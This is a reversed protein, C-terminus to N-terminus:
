GTNETYLKFSVSCNKYCSQTINQETARNVKLIIIFFFLREHHTQRSQVWFPPLYIVWGSHSVYGRPLVFPCLLSPLCPFTLPFRPPSPSPFPRSAGTYFSSRTFSILSSDSVTHGTIETSPSPFQYEIFLSLMNILFRLLRIHLEQITDMHAHKGKKIEIFCNWSRSSTHMHLFLAILAALALVSLKLLLINNCLHYDLSCM